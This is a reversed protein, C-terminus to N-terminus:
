GYVSSSLAGILVQEKGIGLNWSSRQTPVVIVQVGRVCGSLPLDDAVPAHMCAQIYPMAISVQQCCCDWGGPGEWGKASPQLLLEM